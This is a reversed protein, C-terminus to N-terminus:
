ASMIKMLYFRIWWFRLKGHQDTENDVREDLKARATRASAVLDHADLEVVCDHDVQQRKVPRLIDSLGLLRVRTCCEPVRRAIAEIRRITSCKDNTRSTAEAKDAGIMGPPENVEILLAHLLSANRPGIAALWLDLLQAVDKYAGSNNSISIRFTNLRYIMWGCEAYMQRCTRLLSTRLLATRNNTSCETRHHSAITVVGDEILTYEYILIRLEAAVQWLEFIGNIM